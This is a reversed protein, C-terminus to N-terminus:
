AANTSFVVVHSPWEEAIKKTTSFLLYGGKGGEGQVFKDLWELAVSSPRSGKELLRYGPEHLQTTFLNYRENMVM